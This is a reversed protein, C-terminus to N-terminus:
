TWLCVTNDTGGSVFINRASKELRLMLTADAGADIESRAFHICNVFGEHGELTRVLSIKGESKLGELDWVRVSKDDSGSVIFRGSVHVDLCKVWLLHGVFDVIHWAQLNNQVSPLPDRHPRLVPPPLLWLKVVKDRGALIAYKFGLSIDYVPDEVISQLLTPFRELNELVYKDIYENSTMPLFKATEIVHSHHLLLALGAGSEHSLRVSQDNSCTLLFDGLGSKSLVVDVDRTWESHGIFSRTCLGSVLDWSRTSRDRSVSYIVGSKTKSFAVASVTHEHGLLTRAPRFTDGLWVKISLDQSASVLVHDPHNGAADVPVPSWKLDNVSRTHAPWVKQPIEVDGALNWAIITGDSCGAALLPLKPHIAICTVIQNSLTPFRKSVALPLWQLKGHLAELKPVMAGNSQNEHLSKYSAVENELDLIRKQLRVVTLWKKELYNPIVNEDQVGLVQKIQASIEPKDELIPELYQIIAKHLELTQRSTLISM